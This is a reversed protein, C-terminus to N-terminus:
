APALMNIKDDVGNNVFEFIDVEPPWGPTEPLYWFAPRSGCGARRPMKVRTEFYGQKFTTKSCIM